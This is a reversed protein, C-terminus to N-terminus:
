KKPSTDEYEKSFKQTVAVTKDCLPKGAPSFLYELLNNCCQNRSVKRTQLVDRLTKLEKVLLEFQELVKNDTILPDNEKEENKEVEMIKCTENRPNDLTTGSFGTRTANALNTSLQGMQVELNKM